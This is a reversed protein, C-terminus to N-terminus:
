NAGVGDADSSLINEISEMDIGDNDDDEVDDSATTDSLIDEDEVAGQIAQPAESLLAAQVKARLDATAKVNDILYQRLKEKGLFRDGNLDYSSGEKKIISRPIAAEILSHFEDIGYGYRIFIEASHGQKGDLKNKCVKVAVVNGYPIRKKKLTVPDKREIFDSRTRTLKLRHSAYFKVAKGGATNDDEGAHSGAKILSRTQNILMVCTPSDKLWQVMKSLNQSMARALAGIRAEEDLKKDLESKPVMAAVSDVVVLDVGNKVALYLMKYGEELNDPAYLLTDTTNFRVGIQKAYGHHIANEFDLYVSVGGIKQTACVAGLALTTKGSSEAGFVEIVRGRAYGPCVMGSGDPLLSGGLLNDITVIGSPIHPFTVIEGGIPKQGTIKAIHAITLKAVESQKAKTTSRVAAVVKSM